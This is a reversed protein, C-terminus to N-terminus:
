WGLGESILLDVLASRRGEGVNDWDKIVEDAAADFDGAEIAAKMTPWAPQGTENGFVNRGINFAFDILGSKLDDSLADWNSLVAAGAAHESYDKNFFAAAQEDSITDGVSLDDEPLVKHGYGVTANGTTDLYVDNRYGESEQVRKRAAAELDVSGGGSPHVMPSSTREQQTGTSQQVRKEEPSFTDQEDYM